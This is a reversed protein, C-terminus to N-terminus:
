DINIIILDKKFLEIMKLAYEQRLILNREYNSSFPIRLENLSWGWKM